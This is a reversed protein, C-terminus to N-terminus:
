KGDQAAQAARSTQLQDIRDSVSYPRARVSVGQYLKILTEKVLGEGGNEYAALLKEIGEAKREGEARLAEAEQEAMKLAIEGEREQQYAAQEAKTVIGKAEGAATLLQKNLEGQLQALATQKDRESEAVKRKGEERAADQYDRQNTLIQDAEKRDRIIRDYEDDFKFNQANVSEIVIGLQTVDEKLRQETMNIKVRRPVAEAIELTTLEGFQNRIESRTLARLIEEINEEKGLERYAEVARKPDIHYVIEVDVEVNSGDNTKINV